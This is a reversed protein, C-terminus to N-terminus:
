HLLSTSVPRKNLGIKRGSDVGGGEPTAQPTNNAASQEGRGDLRGLSGM